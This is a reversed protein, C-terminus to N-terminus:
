EKHKRVGCKGCKGCKDQHRIASYNAVDRRGRGRQRTRERELLALMSFKTESPYLSMCLVVTGTYLSSFTFYITGKM